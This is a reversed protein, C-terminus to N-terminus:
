LALARRIRGRRGAGAAVQVTECLRRYAELEAEVPAAVLEDGVEEVRRRLSRGAAGARRRAAAGNVLRALVALLLGALIGGLLLVTPLAFGELEPVPIVDGLQLYGLLALALLWLGGVAVCAGLLRQLLGALRWWLPPKTHLDAGAVARDLRDALEDESRIAASRALAPWPGSLDGAAAAALARAAASVQARQVSSAGPLSTRVEPQPSDDLRLRRLPDPRLRRIWRVFPWGTALVGRRRHALAVARVVTPVGAAAALAASLREREARGVRGPSGDCEGGLAAAAGTVDASLRALAAERAAVRRELVERLQPVGEGTRASVVLVPVGDLGDARLLRDIDGRCAALAEPSLVDAQNLAVIMTEDYAALPRLYRDHLAADAYKQPDVIWVVADVLEIMRDVELRHSAEVSDFDPLDLLVLGDLGGGEGIRHRRPVELWDLLEAGVDGWVAAAAASTTPRRASARALESGALANFLSSKGAGTPGALAVVTAELGLGLRQGARRVVARADDVADRELRGDALEAAEALATLRRDLEGSV